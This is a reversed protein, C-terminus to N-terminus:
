ASLPETEMEMEMEDMDMAEVADPSQSRRTEDDYLKHHWAKDAARKIGFHDMISTIDGRIRLAVVGALWVDSKM